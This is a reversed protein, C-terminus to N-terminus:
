SRRASERRLNAMRAKSAARRRWGTERLIPFYDGRRDIKLIIIRFFKPLVFGFFDFTDTDLHASFRSVAELDPM